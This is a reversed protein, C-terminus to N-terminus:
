QGVHIEGKHMELNQKLVKFIYNLKNGTLTAGSIGDIENSAITNSGSKRVVFPNGNEDM